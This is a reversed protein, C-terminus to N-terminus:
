SVGHNCEVPFLAGNSSSLLFFLCYGSLLLLLLWLLVVDGLDVSFALWGLDYTARDARAAVRRLASSFFAFSSNILYLERSFIDV